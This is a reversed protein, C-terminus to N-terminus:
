LVLAFLVLKSCFHPIESRGRRCRGTCFKGICLREPGLHGPVTGLFPPTQPLSLAPARRAGRELTWYTDRFHGQLTLLTKWVSRPFERPVKQVSRLRPGLLAQLCGTACERLCGRKCPSEPVSGSVSRARLAQSVGTAPRRSRRLVKPHDSRRSKRFSLAGFDCDCIM